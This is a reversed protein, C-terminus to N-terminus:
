SICVTVEWHSVCIYGVTSICLCFLCSVLVNGTLEKLDNVSHFHRSSLQVQSLQQHKHLTSVMRVLQMLMCPDMSSISQCTKVQCLLRLM